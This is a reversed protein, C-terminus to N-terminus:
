FFVATSQIDLSCEQSSINGGAHENNPGTLLSTFVLVRISSACNSSETSFKYASTM